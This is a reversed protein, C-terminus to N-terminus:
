KLEQFGIIKLTRTKGDSDIDFTQNKNGCCVDVHKGKISGGKDCAYFLIPINDEDNFGEINVLCGLSIVKPDVALSVHSNYRSGRKYDSLTKLPHGKCDEFGGEIEDDSPYYGTVIVEHEEGIQDMKNSKIKIDM